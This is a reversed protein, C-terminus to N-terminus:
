LLWNNLAWFVMRGCHLQGAILVIGMIWRESGALQGVLCPSGKSGRNQPGTRGADELLQGRIVREKRQRWKKYPNRGGSVDLGLEHYPTGKERLLDRLSLGMRQVLLKLM